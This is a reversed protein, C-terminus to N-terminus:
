QVFTSSVLVIATIALIMEIRSTIKGFRTNKIRKINAEERTMGSILVILLIFAFVIGFISSSAVRFHYNWTYVIIFVMFFILKAVRFGIVKMAKEHLIEKVENFM